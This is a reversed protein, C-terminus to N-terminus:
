HVPKSVASHDSTLRAIVTVLEEAEVPKAVHVQFGASLARRRDDPRALATLAVAPVQGGQDADRQRVRAILSYGDQDPMGIDSILIAPRVADFADLAEAASAAPSVAAGRDRLIRTILDRADPDDEVLMVRLGTLSVEREAPEPLSPSHPGLSAATSAVPITITFTAGKGEGESLAEANGGHLETLHRVIGLGLGLGGFRRTTSADAQRFREFVHPLFRPDIGIGTDTVAIQASQDVRRLTIRVAGGRPTFKVANSLLNWVIQQLRSPDGRVLGATADIAPILEVGRAEAAPRVSGLAAEIVDALQVTQVDLRLKGAVIRSVDLLDDILQAQAKAAREITELGHKAEAPDSRGARLLQSWGLIANLPTRLEHSVTALFDDKLRSAEEANAQAEEAAEKAALIEAEAQKRQTLDVYLAVTENDSGELMAVGVLVPVRSGDSRIFEKEFPTSVGTRKLEEVARRDVDAFEPPTMADWRIDGRKVDDHRRGVIRFYEENGDIVRGDITSFVVGILNSDVLRRFRSESSALAAERQRLDDAAKEARQQAQAQATSLAFLVCSVIAGALLVLLTLGRLSNSEFLPGSRYVITWTHKNFDFKKTRVFRARSLPAPNPDDSRHIIADDNTTDGDYITFDVGGSNRAPGFINSLLDDGRFPAYVFGALTMQRAVPATPLLSAYYVPVYILFGPQGHPDNMEQKLRVKGSLVPEGKDRAQEMAARRTAESFMNYGLAAHNRPNDPELFIIAHEEPTNPDDSWFRFDGNWEGKMRALLEDRASPRVCASVGFGQIGPYRSLELREVYVQWQKRTVKQEIAFLSAGGRLLNVYTDLRQRISTETRDVANDFRTRDKTAATIAVYASSAFTALLSVGLIVYPIILRRRSSGM